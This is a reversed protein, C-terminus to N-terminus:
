QGERGHPADLALIPGLPVVGSPNIEVMSGYYHRKIHQFDVTEGFGPTQYLDRLYGSLNAYDAIRRLNCKFHGFYVADFRVLTTFLRVDALTISQGMLYRRSALRHDLDDLTAFLPMVAEEYADQAKAFGAKYVGNNVTDYVQANLADMDERLDSPYFDHGAFAELRSDAYSSRPASARVDEFAENLMVIIDASENSVITGQQRDWLVPVTYRGDYSPQAAFYLASLLPANLVPDPVVGPGPEFSWGQPRELHWHVVSLGIVSELGKLRRMILARHAWPCALSVYLHYRGAEAKFGGQGAPGPRGDRTVWNRFVADAREFRGSRSSSASASSTPKSGTNSTM